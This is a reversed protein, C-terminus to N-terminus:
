FSFLVYQPLALLDSAWLTPQLGYFSCLFVWQACPRGSLVQAVFRPSWVSLRAVWCVFLASCDKRSGGPKSGPVEGTWTSWPSRMSSM